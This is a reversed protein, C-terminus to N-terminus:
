MVPHHPKNVKYYAGAVVTGVILLLTWLATYNPALFMLTIMALDFITIAWFTAWWFPTMWKRDDPYNPDMGPKVVKVSAALGRLRDTKKGVLVNTTALVILNARRSGIPSDAKFGNSEIRNHAEHQREAKAWLQCGSM